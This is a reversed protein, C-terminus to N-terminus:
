APRRVSRDFGRRRRDRCSTTDAPQSISRTEERFVCGLGDVDTAGAIAFDPGSKPPEARAPTIRVDARKKLSVRNGWSMNGRGSDLVASAITMYEPILGIFLGCDSTERTKVTGAPTM